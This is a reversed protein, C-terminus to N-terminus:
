RQRKGAQLVALRRLEEAVANGTLVKSVRKQVHLISQLALTEALYAPGLCGLTSLCTLRM